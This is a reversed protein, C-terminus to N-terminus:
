APGPPATPLSRSRRRRSAAATARTSRQPRALMGCSAGRDPEHQTYSARRQRRPEARHRLPRRRRLARRVRACASRRPCRRSRSGNAELYADASQVSTSRTAACHASRESSTSSGRGSSACAIRTSARPSRSRGRRSRAQGSSAPASRRWLRPRPEGCRRLVGSCRRYFALYQEVQRTGTYATVRLVTSPAVTHEVAVGGQLQDVSKRTDFLETLPDAARPDAEVQAQTLGLPDQANPQHQTNGIITVRTAPGAAIVLKANVLDRTAASHARYGETDFRSGAAVFGVAGQTGGAQVGVNSTFFSGLSASAEVVPALPPDETFIAVVGGSANGYLTSFPGRLVEIRQASLLGISGTQGQGDPMTLPIFDQYLRVGRVGFTARAGFGRISLQLDQAYNNRNAAFVGPVRALSESLNIAPQGDRITAQDLSDVSAPVDFSRQANRTATVVIPDLVAADQAGASTAMWAACALMSRRVVALLLSGPLSRRHAAPHRM